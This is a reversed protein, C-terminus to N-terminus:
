DRELQRITLSLLEATSDPSQQRQASKLYDVQRQYNAFIQDLPPQRLDAISNRMATFHQQLQAIDSHAQQLAKVVNILLLRMHEPDGEKM